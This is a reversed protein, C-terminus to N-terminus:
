PTRGAASRSGRRRRPPPARRPRGRRSRPRPRGSRARGAGTRGRVGVVGNLAVPVPEVPRGSAARVERTAVLGFPRRRSSACGLDSVATDTTTADCSGVGPVRGPRAERPERLLDRPPALHHQDVRRRSPAPAERPTRTIRPRGSASAGSSQRSPRRAVSTAAPRTRSPPSPRRGGAPEVGHEGPEVLRARRRDAPRDLRGLSERRGVPGDVQQTVHVVQAREGARVRRAERRCRANVTAVREVPDVVHDVTPEPLRLNMADEAAPALAQRHGVPRRHRKVAAASQPRRQALAKPVRPVVPRHPRDPRAGGRPQERRGRRRDRRDQQFPDGAVNRPRPRDNPGQSDATGPVPAEARPRPPPRPTPHTPPAPM